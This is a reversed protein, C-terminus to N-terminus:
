PLISMSSDKRSHDIGSQALSTTLYSDLIESSRKVTLEGPIVSTHM